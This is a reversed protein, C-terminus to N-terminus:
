ATALESWCLVKDIRFVVVLLVYILHLAGNFASYLQHCFRHHVYKASNFVILDIEVGLM